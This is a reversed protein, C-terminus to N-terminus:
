IDQETQKKEADEGTLSFSFNLVKSSIRCLYKTHTDTYTQSFAVFCQPFLRIYYKHSDAQLSRTRGDPFHQRPFPSFM